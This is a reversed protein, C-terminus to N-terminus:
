PRGDAGPVLAHTDPSGDFGIAQLWARAAAPLAAAHAQFSARDTLHIPTAGAAPKKLTLTM